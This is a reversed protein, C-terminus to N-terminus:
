PWEISCPPVYPVRVVVAALLHHHSDKELVEIQANYITTGAGNEIWVTRYTGSFIAWASVQSAAAERSATRASTDTALQDMYTAISLTVALITSFAIWTKKGIRFAAALRPHKSRAAKARPRPTRMTMPM